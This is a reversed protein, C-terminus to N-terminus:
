IIGDIFNAEKIVGDVGYFLQQGNVGMYTVVDIIEQFVDRAYTTDIVNGTGFCIPEHHAVRNRILNIRHLKQYITKQNCGSPRNPFIALLTGGGAKFQGGAFMFKWFGFSLQSLLKDHSYNQRMDAYAKTIKNLSGQCGNQTLFGGPHMAALFWDPTESFQAKYHVDIKNRLVVEFIGLIALFALSMRINARYLCLTKQINYNCAIRYRKLRQLSM